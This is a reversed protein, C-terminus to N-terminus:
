EESFKWVAVASLVKTIKFLLFCCFCFLPAPYLLCSLSLSWHRTRSSLSPKTLTCPFKVSIFEFQEEIIVLNEEMEVQINGSWLWKFCKCVEFSNVPDKQSKKWCVKIRFYCRLVWMKWFYCHCLTLFQQRHHEYFELCWLEVKTIAVGFYDGRHVVATLWPSM